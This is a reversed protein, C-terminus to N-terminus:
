RLLKETETSEIFTKLADWTPIAEWDGRVMVVLAGAANGFKLCEELGYGRLYSVLFAADFADGAGIVDM